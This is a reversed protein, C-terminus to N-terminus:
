AATYSVTTIRKFSLTWNMKNIDSFAIIPFYVSIPSPMIIAGFEIIELLM